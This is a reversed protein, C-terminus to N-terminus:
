RAPPRRKMTRSSPVEDGRHRKIAQPRHRKIAQPRHRQM